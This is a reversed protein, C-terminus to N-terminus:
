QRKKPNRTLLAKTTIAILESLFRRNELMDASVHIAPKAGPYPFGEQYKAGVFRKGPETIKVCLEDDCVFGVVKDQCYLAYEGFMKRVRVQAVGELQDLIYEVTSEKTAM